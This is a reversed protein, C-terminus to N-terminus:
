NSDRMHFMCVQSGDEEKGGQRDKEGGFAILLELSSFLSIEYDGKKKQINVISRM